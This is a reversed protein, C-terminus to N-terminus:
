HDRHIVETALATLAARGSPALEQRELCRLALEVQRRAEIEAVTRGGAQEIACTLEPLYAPAILSDAGFLRDVQRAPAGGAALAALVPLTKKGALLDAGVPKGTRAPDGWIGLVDDICQFAVGMHGGFRSLADVVQPAAHVLAAGVACATSLLSGSKDAAMELYSDVSVDSRPHSYIDTTQGRMLAHLSRLVAETAAPVGLDTVTRLALVLLADGTLLAAPVGFKVWASPRHRRMRDGDMIDDHLLTFNHVLEVSVAGAMADTERGRGAVASALTLAARVCKGPGPGGAPGSPGAALGLHYEAVARLPAPLTAVAEALGAAVADAATAEM